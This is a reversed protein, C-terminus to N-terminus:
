DVAFTVKLSWNKVDPQKQGLRGMSVLSWTGQLLDKDEKPKDTVAENAVSKPPAEAPEPRDARARYTLMGAGTGAVGVALLFVLAIKVKNLFMARLGGEALLAATTSAVGAAAKKGAAFLLAAKTTADVLSAPFAAPLEGQALLTAS